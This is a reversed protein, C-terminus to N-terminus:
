HLPIEDAGHPPDFHCDEDLMAPNIVVLDFRADPVHEYILANARYVAREREHSVPATLLWFTLHDREARVWLRQAFDIERLFGILTQQVEHQITPHTATM